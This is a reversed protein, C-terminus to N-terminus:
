LVLPVFVCRVEGRAGRRFSLPIQRLLFAVTV